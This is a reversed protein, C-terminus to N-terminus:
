VEDSRMVEEVFQKRLKRVEALQRRYPWGNGWIKCAKENYKRCLEYGVSEGIPAYGTSVIVKGLDYYDCAWGEARTSYGFPSQDSLLYQLNCYSVAIVVEDWRSAMARIEKRTYKNKM